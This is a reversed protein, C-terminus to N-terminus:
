PTSGYKALGRSLQLEFVRLADPLKAAARQLFRQPAIPGVARLAKRARQLGARRRQVARAGARGQRGFELWQWYYPDDPSTAGRRSLKKATLGAAPKVNVFVGVAGQQRARKSTRVSIAKRVTGPKRVLKGKRRVPAALIPTLRRAEDRVLRAGAALANRVLRRRLDAKLGELARHLDSLGRVTVTTSGSM